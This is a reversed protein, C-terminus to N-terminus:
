RGSWSPRRRQVFAKMGESFDETPILETIEHLGKEVVFKFLDRYVRATEKIAKASLPALRLIKNVFEISTIELQDKSVVLDVIGLQKAEEADMQDGTLCFRMMGRGVVALGLSSAIPPIAGILGEPVSFIADESAIVIDFALNLELGGGFAMGNVLSILPKKYNAITNLLPVAVNMFFDKGDLFSKWTGMVAIDDGACFARGKGTLVVVRIDPDREAQILADNLGKWMEENLANLKDPRNMTILAYKDRKEYIVPGFDKREYKWNYFGEGTKKGLKREAVMDSLMPDVNRGRLAEVVNDIGFDDALELIGKPYAMGLVMAKDISEKSAVGNRILWCAENVGPALLRLPNLRYAFKPLIKARSYFGEYEYFGRGTKMGLRNDEIMRKVTESVEVDMGRKRLEVIVNYLVDVGSFDVVELLGMPMGIRHRVVADIEEPRDGEEILKVAENFIRVNIRNVVFGPVEKEVVIYDMKISKTFEITRRLTEESTKEGKVIEVFKIMVPPNFFHLGIVKEPRKTASAIDSIPITSTNTALIVNTKCNEDLIRFIEKKVDTKEVVAEIVFDANKSAEVLNISTKIRQIVDIANKIEKREELKKLSWGIKMKASELVEESVDVLDVDFGAIACVAAIGHGMTGAGVVLVRM